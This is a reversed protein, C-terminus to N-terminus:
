VYIFDAALLVHAVQQRLRESEIADPHQCGLTTKVQTSSFDVQLIAHINLITVEAIQFNGTPLFEHAQCHPQLYTCLSEVKIMCCRRSLKPERGQPCGIILLLLFIEMCFTISCFPEWVFTTPVTKSTCQWSPEIEHDSKSMSTNRTTKAISPHPVHTVQM